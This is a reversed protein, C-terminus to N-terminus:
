AIWDTGLLKEEQRSTWGPRAVLAALAIGNKRLSTRRTRLRNRSAACNFPLHDDRRRGVGGDLPRGLPRKAGKAGGSMDFTLDRNERRRVHRAPIPRTARACAELATFALLLGHLSLRDAKGADDSM